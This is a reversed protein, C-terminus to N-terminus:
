VPSYIMHIHDKRKTNQRVHIVPRVIISLSQSICSNPRRTPSFRGWSLNGTKQFRAQSQHRGSYPVGFNKGLQQASSSFCAAQCVYASNDQLFISSLEKLRMSSDVHPGVGHKVKNLLRKAETARQPNQATKYWHNPSPPGRWCRGLRLVCMLM